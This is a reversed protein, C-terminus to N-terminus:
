VWEQQAKSGAPPLAVYFSVETAFDGVSLEVGDSTTTYPPEKCNKLQRCVWLALPNEAEGAELGRTSQHEGEPKSATGPGGKGWRLGPSPCHVLQSSEKRSGTLFVLGDLDSHVKSGLAREELCKLHSGPIQVNEHAWQM